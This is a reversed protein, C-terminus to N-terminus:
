CTKESLFEKIKNLANEVYVEKKLNGFCSAPHPLKIIKGKKLEFNKQTWYGLLVIISDSNPQYKDSWLMNGKTIEEKDKPFYEIECLNTKFCFIPLEEIIADIIKGSKTRSDLPYMGPKNHMGVFFCAGKIDPSNLEEM